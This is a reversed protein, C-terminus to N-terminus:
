NGSLLMFLCRIEIFRRIKSIIWRVMMSINAFITNQNFHKILFLTVTSMKFVTQLQSHKVSQENSKVSVTGNEFIANKTHQQFCISRISYYYWSESVSSVQLKACLTWISTLTNETLKLSKQETNHTNSYKVKSLPGSKEPCVTYVCRTWFFPVSM